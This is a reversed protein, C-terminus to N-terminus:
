GYWWYWAVQECTEMECAHSCDLPVWCGGGLRLRGNGGLHETMQYKVQEAWAVEQAWM